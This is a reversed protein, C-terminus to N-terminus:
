KEAGVLDRLSVTYGTLDTTSNKRLAAKARKELDRAPKKRGLRRLATAQELM